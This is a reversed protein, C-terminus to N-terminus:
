VSYSAIEKEEADLGARVVYLLSEADGSRRSATFATPVGAYRQDVFNMVEAIIAIAEKVQAPSGGPLDKKARGIAREHDTHAIFNDRAARAFTISAGLREVLVTLQSRNEQDSVLEPLRKLSLKTRKGDGPHDTLRCLHLLIANWFLDRLNAFFSPAAENMVHYNEPKGLFLSEFDRWLLHLRVCDQWLEYFSLGLEEGMVDLYRARAEDETFADAM